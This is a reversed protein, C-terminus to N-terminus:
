LQTGILRQGIQMVAQLDNIAPGILLQLAQDDARAVVTEVLRASRPEGWERIVAGPAIQVQAAFFAEKRFLVEASAPRM